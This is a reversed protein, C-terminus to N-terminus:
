SSGGGVLFLLLRALLDACAVALLLDIGLASTLDLFGQNAFMVEASFGGPDPVISRFLGHLLKLGIISPLRFGGGIRAGEDFKAETGIVFM